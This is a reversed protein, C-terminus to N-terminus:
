DDRIRNVGETDLGRSSVSGRTRFWTAKRSRAVIESVGNEIVMFIKLFKTDM